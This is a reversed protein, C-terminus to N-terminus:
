PLQIVKMEDDAPAPLDLGLPQTKIWYLASLRFMAEVHRQMIDACKALVYQKALELTPLEDQSFFAAPTLVGKENEAFFKQFLDNLHQFSYLFLGPFTESAKVDFDGFKYIPYVKHAKIEPVSLDKLISTTEPTIQAYHSRAKNILEHMPQMVPKICNLFNFPSEACLTRGEEQLSLSMRPFRLSVTTGPKEVGQVLSRCLDNLDQCLRKSATRSRGTDVCFRQEQVLNTSLFEEQNKLVEDMVLLEKALAALNKVADTKDLHLQVLSGTPADDIFKKDTAYITQPMVFCLACFLIIRFTM